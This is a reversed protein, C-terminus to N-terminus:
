GTQNAVSYVRYDGSALWRPPKVRRGGRTLSPVPVHPTGFMVEEVMDVPGPLPENEGGPESINEPVIDGGPEFLNEPVIEERVPLPFVLPDNQPAVPDEVRTFCPKLRNFHVIQKVRTDAKGIVYTVDSLRKEVIYPGGWFRQLKPSIGKRRRPTFLWVEDGVDYKNGRVRADYGVKQRKQETKVHERITGFSKLMQEQIRNVFEIPSLPTGPPPEAMLTLPINNERGFMMKNPSLGTTVHESCRYAMMVLPLQLDWDSQDIRVCSSLMSELTQNFREVLGDSQAHYATTRTKRIGLLKCIESFLRSEFNAGKDTHISRPVGFRVIFEDIIRRALTEAEQNPVAYAETWRTFYDALVVIYRNGRVTLPLPGLVDIAVRELPESVHSNVMPARYPPVPKKRAQCIKCSRVWYTVAKRLGIWYLSQKVKCLTKQVGMHGGIVADHAQRLINTKFTEPVLLLERNPGITDAWVRYVVGHNLVLQDWQAWLAKVERSETLVSDFVPRERGNELWGLLVSIVPDSKQAERIEGLTWGQVHIANLSPYRSMADANKHKNGPRFVIDYEYSSLFEIWRAVQGTPQKFNHLWRLSGHDTRLRFKRGYLYHRFHKVSKIVAVLEKRTVSYNAEQPSHTTSFYAIVREGDEYVQSLVSGVGLDSADTDLLFPKEFDPFALVSSGILAEKLTEFAAQCDSSWFFRTNKKTLQFLPSAIDSFNRVFKRYYSCLGVFSRVETLSTPAPWDKVKQIKAPDTQVGQASVVHGLYGVEERFLNCKQPKLKLNSQSLKEFVEGLREVHEEFTQSFVIVDDLYILCTKWHLGALIREMLREFTSPANCLGFPLVEFQFLGTGTTFATKEKADDTLGCQWYGSALDLTSFFKSGSLIDLSDDIRPLPYADKKTVDNLRRFDICFHQSGDKKEVLVIPAAWPSSSPVIVENELMDKVQKDVEEKKHFPLRYARQKIPTADGTNIDHPILDSRGLKKDEKMFAGQHKILLDKVVKQQETDLNEVTDSLLKELLPDMDSETEQPSDLQCDIVKVSQLLGIVTGAPILQPEKNLNCLRLPVKGHPHETNVLAKGVLVGPNARSFSRVSEVMGREPLAGRNQLTGCSMTESEPSLIVSQALVVKCCQSYGNKAM